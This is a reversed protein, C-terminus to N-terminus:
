ATARRHALRQPKGKQVRGGEAVGIGGVQGAEEVLRSVPLFDGAGPLRLHAAHTAQANRRDDAEILRARSVGVHLLTEADGDEFDGRQRRRHRTQTELPRESMDSELRTGPHHLAGACHADDVPSAAAPADGPHHGLGCASRALEVRCRHNEGRAPHQVSPQHRALLAEDLFGNEVKGNGEAAFSLM